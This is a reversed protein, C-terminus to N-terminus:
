YLRQYLHSLTLLSMFIHFYENFNIRWAIMYLKPWVCHLVDSKKIYQYMITPTETLAIKGIRAM